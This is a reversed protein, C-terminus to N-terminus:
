VKKYGKLKIVKGSDKILDDSGGKSLVWIIDNKLDKKEIKDGYGDTLWILVKTDRHKEIFQNYPVNFCTGGGGKIKTTDLIKKVNGNEVVWSEGLECEHVALTMKIKERYARAMGVIESLFDNLEENGISGSTDIMIGIEIKQKTLDPMYFGSSISKKNPRSYDFDSPIYSQLYRQLLAKWNIENKHLDGVLREIGKPINGQMKAGTYAEMIRNQWEKEKAEKQEKTLKGKDKIHNDISRAKGGGKNTSGEIEYGELDEIDIEIGGEGKGIKIKGSKLAQKLKDKLHNFLEWYIEEAPKDKVNKVIVM